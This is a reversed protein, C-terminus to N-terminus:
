KIKKNEKVDSITQILLINDVFYFEKVYDDPIKVNFLVVWNKASRVEYVTELAMTRHDICRILEVVLYKENACADYAIRKTLNTERHVSKIMEKTSDIESLPKVKWVSLM